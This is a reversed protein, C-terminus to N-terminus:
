IRIIRNVWDVATTCLYKFAPHRVLDVNNCNKGSTACFERLKGHDSFVSLIGHKHVGQLLKATIILQTYWDVASFSRM